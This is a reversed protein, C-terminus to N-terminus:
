IKVHKCLFRLLATSHTTVDATGSPSNRRKGGPVSREITEQWQLPPQQCVDMGVFMHQRRLVTPLARKNESTGNHSSYAAVLQQQTALSERVTEEQKRSFSDCDALQFCPLTGFRM